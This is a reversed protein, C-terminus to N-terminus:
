LESAKVHKVFSIKGALMNKHGKADVYHVKKKDYFLAIDGKKTIKAYGYESLNVVDHAEEDNYYDWTYRELFGNDYAWPEEDCSFSSFRIEYGMDRAKELKAKLEEITMSSNYCM